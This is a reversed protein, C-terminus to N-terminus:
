SCGRYNSKVNSVGIGSCKESDRAIGAQESTTFPGQLVSYAAFRHLYGKGGTLIVSAREIGYAVLDITRGAAVVFYKGNKRYVKIKPRREETLKRPDTCIVSLMQEPDLEEDGFFQLDGTEHNGTAYWGIHKFGEGSRLGFFYINQDKVSKYWEWEPQLLLALAVKSALSTNTKYHATVAERIFSYGEQRSIQAIKKAQTSPDTSITRLCNKLARHPNRIRML